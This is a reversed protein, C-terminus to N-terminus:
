LYAFRCAVCLDKDYSVTALVAERQGRLDQCSGAQPMCHRLAQIEVGRMFVGFSHM